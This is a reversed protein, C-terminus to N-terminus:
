PEVEFQRVVMEWELRVQRNAHEYRIIEYGDVNLVESLSSVFGEVRYPLEGM